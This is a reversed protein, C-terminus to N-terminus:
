CIVSKVFLFGGVRVCAAKNYAVIDKGAAQVPETLARPTGAGCPTEKLLKVERQTFSVSPKYRYGNQQISLEDRRM